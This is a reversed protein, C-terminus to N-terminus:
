DAPADASDSLFRAGRSEDYKEDLLKDDMRDLETRPLTCLLDWGLDLTEDMSRNEDFGQNLFNDEFLRGFRM